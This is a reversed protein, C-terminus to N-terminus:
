LYVDFGQTINFIYTAATLSCGQFELSELSVELLVPVTFKQTNGPIGNITAITLNNSPLVEVNFYDYATYLIHDTVSPNFPVGGGAPSLYIGRVSSETYSVTYNTSLVIDPHSHAVIAVNFGSTLSSQFTATSSLSGDILV